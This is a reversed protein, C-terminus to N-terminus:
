DITIQYTVLGSWAFQGDNILENFQFETYDAATIATENEPSVPLSYNNKLAEFLQDFNEFKDESLLQAVGFMSNSRILTIQTSM